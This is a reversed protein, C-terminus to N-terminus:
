VAEGRFVRWFEVFSKLRVVQFYDNAILYFVAASAWVVHLADGGLQDSFPLPAASLVMALVLLALNVIGMVMGIEMLKGTFTKGLKFSELLASLASRRELVMLVPAISVAWGILAWLTFFGLSLFVAWMSYGVLDPEGDVPIHTAAVWAISRLWGWCTSAFVVVWVLQLLLMAIPRFRASPELRKLVLSRGLSSIAVWALFALPGIWRIEAAIFPEYLAFARNLQGAAVWPNQADINTLGASEPPLAALIHQLRQWCVLLFPVGFLWRWAVELATISPRSFM